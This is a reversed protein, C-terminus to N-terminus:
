TSAAEDGQGAPAPQRGSASSQREAEVYAMRLEHLTMELLSHEPSSLNGKTKEDLVGLLDIFHRALELQVDSKGTAPNPILGLAFMAQTSFMGVLTPFEARPFLRPDLPKSEATKEASEPPTQPEPEKTTHQPPPTKHFRQDLAADEAKVREKWNNDVHIEPRKADSESSMPTVESGSEAPICCLDAEASRDLTHGISRLARM